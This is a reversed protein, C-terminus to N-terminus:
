YQKINKDQKKYIRKQSPHLYEWCKNCVVPYEHVYIGKGNPHNFYCGCKSCCSRDAMDEAIEGM